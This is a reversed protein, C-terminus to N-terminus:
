YLSCLEHSRRSRPSDSKPCVRRYFKYRVKDVISYAAFISILLTKKPRLSGLLFRLM